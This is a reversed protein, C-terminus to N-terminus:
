QRAFLYQLYEAIYDEVEPADKPKIRNRVSYHHSWMVWDDVANEDGYYIRFQEQYNKPYPLPTSNIRGQLLPFIKEEAFGKPDGGRGIYDTLWKGMPKIYTAGDEAQYKTHPFFDLTGGNRLPLQSFYYRVEDLRIGPFMRTLEQRYRGFTFAVWCHYDGTFCGDTLFTLGNRAFAKELAAKNALLEEHIVGFDSDDDWPQLSQFRLLSLNTGYAAWYTIHAEKLAKASAAVLADQTLLVLPCVLNQDLQPYSAPPHSTFMRGNIALTSAQCYKSTKWDSPAFEDNRTRDTACALVVLLLSAYVRKM